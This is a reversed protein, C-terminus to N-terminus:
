VKDPKGLLVRHEHCSLVPAISCFVTPFVRIYMQLPQWSPFTAQTVVVQKKCDQYIAWQGTIPVEAVSM